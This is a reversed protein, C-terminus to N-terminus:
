KKKKKEEMQERMADACSSCIGHTDAETSAEGMYTGCWACVRSAMKIEKRPFFPMAQGCNISRTQLMM